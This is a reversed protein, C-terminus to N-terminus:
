GAGARTGHNACATTYVDLLADTVIRWDYRTRANAAGREALARAFAPQDHVARLAAVYAATNNPECLLGDQEHTVFSPIGGIRSAVVPLGASWAELIVIGFPEHMTPLLFVNAAHYADLLATGGADLGPILTCHDAVGLTRITHQLEAHYADNTVHGIMVLHYDQGVGLLEALVRVAALQNKQPDIRSILLIVWAHPPIRYEARFRAGDGTAFRASDVGNPLLTVRTNPLRRQTEEYEQRGVCIVAAADDLVRRAGVWWGLAKGWEVAGRTPETWRRAEEAPVDFVGGHLSIVYPINRRRAVHRCIGGLRKGAHAHILDLGPYAQLRRLMSFSFLNGGKKDLAHRAAKSLGFYPYFYPVRTVQVGDIMERNSTALANPCIIETHHGRALLQKSTQLVVTETGGWDTRVFRRPVQIITM